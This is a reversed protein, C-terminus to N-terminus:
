FKSKILERLEKVTMDLSTEDLLKIGYHEEFFTVMEYFDSETIGHNEITESDEVDSTPINAFAAVLAKVLKINKM